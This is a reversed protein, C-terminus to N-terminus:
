PTPALSGVRLPARTVPQKRPTMGPMETGDADTDGQATLPVSAMEGDINTADTAFLLHAAVGPPSVRKRERRPILPWSTTAAQTRSRLAVALPAAAAKTSM